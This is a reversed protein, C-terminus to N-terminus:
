SLSRGADMKPKATPEAQLKVKPLIDPEVSVPTKRMSRSQENAFKGDKCGSFKTLFSFECRTFRLFARLEWQLCKAYFECLYTM